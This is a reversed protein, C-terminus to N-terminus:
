RESQESYSAPNRDEQDVGLQVSPQDGPISSGQSKFFMQRLQKGWKYLAWQLHWDTDIVKSPFGRM